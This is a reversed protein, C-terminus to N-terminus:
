LADYEEKSIEVFDDHPFEMDGFDSDFVVITAGDDYSRGCCVSVGYDGRTLIPEGIYKYYKVKEM